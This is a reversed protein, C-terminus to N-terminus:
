EQSENLNAEKLFWGREAFERSVYGEVAGAYRVRYFDGTEELLELVAGRPAAVVFESDASAAVRINLSEEATVRVGEVAHQAAIAKAEEGYMVYEGAIYGEIGSTLVKFWGNGLNELIEGGEYPKLYALVQGDVPAERVNLFREPNEEDYRMIFMDRYNNVVTEPGDLPAPETVTEESPTTPEETTPEESSTTPAETTPAETVTPQETKSPTGTTPEAAATTTEKDFLKIIGRKNLILLVAAAVVLAVIATFIWFRISEKRLEERSAQQRQDRRSNQNVSKLTSRDTKEQARKKKLSAATEGLYEADFDDEEGADEYGSDGLIEDEEDDQIPEFDFKPENKVPAAKEPAPVSPAKKKQAAAPIETETQVPKYAVPAEDDDDDPILMDFDDFNLRRERTDIVSDDLDPGKEKPLPDAKTVPATEPMEFVPVSEKPERAKETKEERLHQLNLTPISVSPAAEPAKVKQVTEAATEAKQEAKDSVEEELDDFDDFLINLQDELNRNEDAM